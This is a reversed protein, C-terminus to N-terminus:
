QSCLATAYTARPRCGHPKPTTRRSALNRRCTGSRHTSPATPASSPHRKLQSPQLKRASEHAPVCYPSGPSAFPEEPSLSGEPPGAWSSARCSSSSRRCQTFPPAWGGPPPGPSRTASVPASSPCSSGLSRCTRRRAWPDELACKIGHCCVGPAALSTVCLLLILPDLAAATSRNTSRTMQGVLASLTM